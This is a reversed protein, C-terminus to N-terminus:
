QRTQEATTRPRTVEGLTRTAVRRLRRLGRRWLPQERGALAREVQKLLRRDRLAAAVERWQGEVEHSVSYLSGIASRLSPGTRFSDLGHPAGTVFLQMRTRICKECTGCNLERTKLALCVRLRGRLREWRAISAVRQLRSLEASFNEIRVSESSWAADLDPASGWPPPVDSAAVYMTHVHSGLAHAIAALAGIHNTGWRVLKFLPHARLNTRVVVFEVGCEATTAGLSERARRLRDVDELPIDFGEVFVAYRLRPHLQQLVYSSDVGGTYFVGSDPGPPAAATVPARVEGASLEPWWEKARKRVFALNELFGADLPGSVELNAHLSMAPLLFTCVLVEPRPSLPVRSEFFVETGAVSAVIRWLDPGAIELRPQPITILNSASM